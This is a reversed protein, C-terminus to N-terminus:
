RFDERGIEFPGHSRDAESQGRVFNVSIPRNDRFTLAYEKFPEEKGATDTAETKRNKWMKDMWKPLNVNFKIDEDPKTQRATAGGLLSASYNNVASEHLRMTVDHKEASRASQGIRRAALPQGARSRLEISDKDSSFRIHDPVEGRRELPRRYEDEYRKRADQIEDNLEDNFKNEIRDEAHDAAISEAQGQSSQARRWGISSVLRSGLGGGQKSVSHLHTDTKANARASTAVFAEDSLEVRKKATFNTDSTSRIM